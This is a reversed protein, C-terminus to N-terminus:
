KRMMIRFEIHQIEFGFNKFLISLSTKTKSVYTADPFPPSKWSKKKSKEIFAGLRTATEESIWNGNSGLAGTDFMVTAEKTM